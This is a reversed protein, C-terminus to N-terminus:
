DKEKRLKEVGNEQDLYYQTERQWGKQKDPLNKESELFGYMKEGIM